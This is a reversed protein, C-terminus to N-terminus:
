TVVVAKTGAKRGRPGPIPRPMIAAQGQTDQYVDVAHALAAVRATADDVARGSWYVLSADPKMMVFAFMPLASEQAKTEKEAKRAKALMDALQQVTLNSLDLTPATDQTTTDNAKTM